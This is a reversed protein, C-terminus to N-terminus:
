KQNCINLVQRAVKKAREPNPKLLLEVERQCIFTTLQDESPHSDSVYNVFAIASPLYPYRGNCQSTNGYPNWDNGLVQTVLTIKRYYSWLGPGCFIVTILPIIAFSTILKKRMNALPQNVNKPSSRPPQPPHHRNTPPRSLGPHPHGKPQPTRFSLHLRALVPALSVFRGHPRGRLPSSPRATKSM